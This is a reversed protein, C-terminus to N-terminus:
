CGPPQVDVKWIRKYKVFDNYMWMKFPIPLLGGLM